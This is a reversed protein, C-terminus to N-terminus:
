KWGCSIRQERFNNQICRLVSRVSQNRICPRSIRHVDATAEREKTDCDTECEIPDDQEQDRAQREYM